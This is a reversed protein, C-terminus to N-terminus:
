AMKRKRWGYGIVGLAGFALLTLSAPEPTVGSPLELFEFQGPTQSEEYSDGTDRGLNDGGQLVYSDLTTGFPNTQPMGSHIDADNVTLAVAETGNILGNIQIQIGPQPSGFPGNFGGQNSSEPSTVFNLSAGPALTLSSISYSFDGGFNSAASEGITGTFTTAGNNTITFFSTDPSPTYSGLTGGPLMDSYTTTVDLKYGLAGAHVSDAGTLLMGLIAAAFLIRKM